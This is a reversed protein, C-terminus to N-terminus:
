CGRGRGAGRGIQEGKTGRPVRAPVEGVNPDFIDAYRGSAGALVKGDIFHEVNRMDPVGTQRCKSRRFPSILLAIICNYVASICSTFQSSRRTKRARARLPLSASAATAVPSSGVVIPRRM